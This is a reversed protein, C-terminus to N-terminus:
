YKLLSDWFKPDDDKWNPGFRKDCFGSLREYWKVWVNKNKDRAELIDALFVDVQSMEDKPVYYAAGKEFSKKLNDKSIAHATLMLAPIDKNNAIELLQYGNVGMIDLVAAHYFNTELLEKAKEFTPATDVKCMDLLETLFALIDHEDDVVLVRKGTLIKKPDM